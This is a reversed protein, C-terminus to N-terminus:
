AAWAALAHARIHLSPKKFQFCHALLGALPNVLFKYAAWVGSALVSIKVLTDVIVAILSLSAADM